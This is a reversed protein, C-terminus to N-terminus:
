KDDDKKAEHLTMDNLTQDLATRANMQPNLWAKAAGGSLMVPMRDHIHRIAPAADRTLVVFVPKGEEFRYLGALYFGEAAEPAIAQKVKGDARKEWEFYGSAPILCRRLAMSEAFMPSTEATESRANIVLRGKPGKWGWKMAHPAAKGSRARAFVSATDGPCIEGTKIMGELLMPDLFYRGCM